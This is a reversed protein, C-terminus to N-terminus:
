QTPCPLALARNLDDLARQPQNMGLYALARDVYLIAAASPGMARGEQLRLAETLDTAAEDFRQRRLTIKARKLYLQPVQPTLAISASYAAAADADRGLREQCLGLACWVEPDQPDLQSAKQLLPLADQFRGH